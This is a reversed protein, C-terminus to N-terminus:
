EVAVTVAGAELLRGQKLEQGLNEKSIFLCLSTYIWYVKAEEDQKQKMINQKLM